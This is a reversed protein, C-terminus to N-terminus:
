MHSCSLASLVFGAFGGWGSLPGVFWSWGVGYWRVVVVVSGSRPTPASSPTRNFVSDADLTFFCLAFGLGWFPNPNGWCRLFLSLSFVDGGFMGVVLSFFFLPSCVGFRVLPLDQLAGFWVVDRGWLGLFFCSVMCIDLLCRVNHDNQGGVAAMGSFLKKPFFFTQALKRTGAAFPGFKYLTWAHGPSKCNMHLGWKGSYSAKSKQWFSPDTSGFFNKSLGWDQM